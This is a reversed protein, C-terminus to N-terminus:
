KRVRKKQNTICMTLMQIPEDDCGRSFKTVIQHRFFKTQNYSRNISAFILIPSASPMRFESEQISAKGFEAMIMKGAMTPSPKVGERKPRPYVGGGVVPIASFIIM